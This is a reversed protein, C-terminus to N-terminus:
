TIAFLLTAMKRSLLTWIRVNREQMEPYYIVHARRETRQISSRSETALHQM